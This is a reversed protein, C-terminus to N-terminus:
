CCASIQVEDLLPRLAQGTEIAVAKATTQAVANTVLAFMSADKPSLGALLQMSVPRQPINIRRWSATDPSSNPRIHQTSLEPDAVLCDQSNGMPPWDRGSKPTLYTFQVSTGVCTVVCCVFTQQSCMEPSQCIPWCQFVTYSGGTSDLVAYRGLQMQVNLAWLKQCDHMFDSAAVFIHPVVKTRPVLILFASNPLVDGSVQVLPGHTGLRSYCFVKALELLQKQQWLCAIPWCRKVTIVIFLDAALASLQQTSQGAQQISVPANRSRM